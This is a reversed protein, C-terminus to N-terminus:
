CQNVVSSLLRTPSPLKLNLVCEKKNDSARRHRDYDDMSGLFHDLDLNEDVNAAFWDELEMLQERIHSLDELKASFNHIFM